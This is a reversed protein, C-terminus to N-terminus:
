GEERLAVLPELGSARRAPLWCALGAIVVFMLAIAAFTAPDTTGVGVVMTRMVRTLALAALLGLVIGGAALGFGQRVILGFISRANAGFAMRVGIEATRQRVATSLVGYLGVSALIAAIVAFVGICILAFRTPARADDVFDSLARVDALVLTRDLARIESRVAQVLSM